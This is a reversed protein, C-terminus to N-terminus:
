FNKFFSKISNRIVIKNFINEKKLNFNNIFKELNQNTDGDVKLNDIEIFKDDFNFLFGFNIKKINRRDARNLQYHSYFKMPDIFDLSIYGAFTLKNNEIILQVEDLNVIVSNKFTTKLDNIFIDGEELLINFEIKDLFNIGEVNEIIFNIKGSLNNNNLIESNIINEFISNDNFVNKLDIRLIKLDSSLFFPKINIDGTIENDDTNFNLSNNKFSYNIKKNKNIITIDLKGDVKDDKYNSNDKINLRLRHSDIETFIRNTNIDHDIKLSVPVNFINFKSNLKQLSNEQNLYNLTKLDTLFIIDQNKDLYFLKSNIFNIEFSSKNDNLLKRFFGFNSNDVKFDTKKFILDNITLGEPSFFNNISIFFKTNSSVGIIKSHHDIKVNKSVFHPKPFLGYSLKKDIIIKLNLQKLIQNEIQAKVKNQDYFSPLLFYCIILFLVVSSYIFIRKDIINLNKFFNRKNFFNKSFFNFFSEIRKTISLVLNSYKKVFKKNSM